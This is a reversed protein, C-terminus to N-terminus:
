RGRRPDATANIDDRPTASSLFPHAHFNSGTNSLDWGYSSWLPDSVPAASALVAGTPDKAVTAGPVHSTLEAATIGFGAQNCGCRHDARGAAPFM